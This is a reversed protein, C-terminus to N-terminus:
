QERGLASMCLRKTQEFDFSEPFSAWTHIVKLASRLEKIVESATMTLDVRPDSLARNINRLEAKLAKITAANDIPFEIQARAFIAARIEAVAAELSSIRNGDATKASASKHAGDFLGTKFAAEVLAKWQNQERTTCTQYGFPIPLTQWLEDFKM